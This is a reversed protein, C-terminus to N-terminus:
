KKKDTSDVFNELWWDDRSSSVIARALDKGTRTGLRELVHPLWSGPPKYGIDSLRKLDLILALHDADRALKAERSEGANFEEILGAMLHGFPLNRTADEIAKNEDASVYRKQVTNLDGIRAEAFDHAMCMTVLKFADVEPELESMVFAIVTTCYTHEAVSENGTGLFHYGSRPIEKLMSAEFLFNVIHKMGEGQNVIEDKMHESQALRLGFIYGSSLGLDTSV